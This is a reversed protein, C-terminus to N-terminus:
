RCFICTFLYAGFFFTLVPPSAIGPYPNPPPPRWGNDTLAAAECQAALPVHVERITDLIVKERDELFRHITDNATPNDFLELQQRAVNLLEIDTPPTPSRSILLDKMLCNVVAYLAVSNPETLQPLVSSYKPPRGRRAAPPSAFSSM